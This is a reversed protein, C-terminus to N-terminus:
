IIYIGSFLIEEAATTGKVAVLLSFEAPKLSNEPANIVHRLSIIIKQGSESNPICELARAQKALV